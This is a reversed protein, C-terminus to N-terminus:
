SDISNNDGTADTFEAFETFTTHAASHTIAMNAYADGEHLGIPEIGRVGGGELTKARLSDGTGLLECKQTV